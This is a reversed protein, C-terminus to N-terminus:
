MTHSARLPEKPHVVTRAYAATSDKVCMPVEMKNAYRQAAEIAKKKSGVLTFGDRGLHLGTRTHDKRDIPYICYDKAM